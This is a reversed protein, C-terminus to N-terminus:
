GELITFNRFAATSEYSSGAMNDSVYQIQGSSTVSFLVGAPYGGSEDGEFPGNVIDWSDTEEKYICKFWGNAVMESLSTKRFVEYFVQVSKYSASDLTFGTISLPTSQNNIIEIQMVGERVADDIVRRLQLDFEYIYANAGVSTIIKPVFKEQDLEYTKYTLANKDEFYKFAKGYAAFTQVFSELSARLNESIFSFKLKRVGEVNNLQTARVGSISETVKRNLITAEPDIEKPPYDFSIVTPVFGGYVIKPIHHAM